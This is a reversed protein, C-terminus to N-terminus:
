ADVRVAEAGRQQIGLPAGEHILKARMEAAGYTLILFGSLERVTPNEFLAIPSVPQGIRTELGQLVALLSASDLGSAAFHATADFGHPLGGGRRAIEALLFAEVQSALSDDTEAELRDRADGESGLGQADDVTGAVIGATTAVNRLEAIKERRENFFEVTSYFAGGKTHMSETRLRATCRDRLPASAHFREMYVPLRLQSDASGAIPRVSVAGAAACVVCGDILAPHFLVDSSVARAEDGVEADVYIDEADAYITGRVRMFDGHFLGLSRQFEYVQDSTIQLRSREMAQSDFTDDYRAPSAPCARATVYVGREASGDEIRIGISGEAEANATFILEVGQQAPVRLPRYISIDRLEWDAFAHGLGKLYQYILDLYALGPLVPQGNVVHNKVVTDHHTIFLQHQM